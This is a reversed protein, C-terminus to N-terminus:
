NNSRVKKEIFNIIEVLLHKIQAKFGYGGYHKIVSRFGKKEYEHWFKDRGEPCNYPKHLPQQECKEVTTQIIELDSKIKDFLETGKEDNILVLSVGKDDDFEPFAKDIGWFDALTIDGPHIYDKYPCVYCAPRIIMNTYFLKTFIRSDVKKGDEFWLTEFHAKWGYDIKNRFDVREIKSKYKDQNWKYYDRWIKPSPVGHCVIDICLLSSNDKKLFYHLGAIQCSTGSFLVKKGEELDKQVSKFIDNMNSQVYKSGRMLDRIEPIEARVHMPMLNNDLICGYVVGGISLIYNSIATFIGGSRSNMRIDLSKHKAAFAIPVNYMKKRYEKEEIDKRFSCSAVCANCNICKEEDVIPYLFGETDEQMSIANVPCVSYCSTCGCCKKKDDIIISLVIRRNSPIPLEIYEISYYGRKSIPRLLVGSRM